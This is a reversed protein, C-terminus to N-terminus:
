NMSLQEKIKQVLIKANTEVNKYDPVGPIDQAQFVIDACSFYTDKRENWIQRVEEEINKKQTLSPRSSDGSIRNVLERFPAFLFIVLANNLLHTRNREFTIAGGGTSVVVNKLDRTKKCVTHEWDRFVDWGEGSVIRPITKGSLSIIEDDTDIKGWGLENAICSGFHSKGSGRMGILVIKDVKKKM